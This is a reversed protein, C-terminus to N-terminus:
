RKNDQAAYQCPIHFHVQFGEYLSSELSLGSETGFFLILRQNVNTLGISQRGDAEDPSGDLKLRIAELHESPVGIGNDCVSIHCSGHREQVTVGIAITKRNDNLGHLICNEVLPQLILSPMCISFLQSPISCHLTIRNNHLLNQIEVYDGVVDLENQLTVTHRGLSINYRMLSGLRAISDALQNMDELEAMMRFTELTNFLFHPNIQAHLALIEAEKQRVEAKYVTNILDNIKISMTNMSLALDDIEDHGHVPIHINFDGKQMTSVAKRMQQIRRLLLTSLVYSIGVLLLTLSLVITFFLLQMKRASGDINEAPVIGLLTAQLEPLRRTSIYYHGSTLEYRGNTSPETIASLELRMEQSLKQTIEEGDDSLCIIFGDQVVPTTNLNSFLQDPLIDVELYTPSSFSTGAIKYFISFIRDSNQSSYLFNRSSHIPEFTYGGTSIQEHIAMMWPEGSLVDSHIFFENEPVTDIPTFFRFSGIDKTTAEMWSMLPMITNNMHDVLQIDSYFSPTFFRTLLSNTSFFYSSRQITELQASVAAKEQDMRNEIANMLETRASTVISNYLYFLGATYPLSILLLYCLILKAKYSISLTFKKAM